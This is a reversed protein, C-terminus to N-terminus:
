WRESVGAALNPLPDVEVKLPAGAAVLRAALSVSVRVRAPFRHGIGHVEARLPGDGVILRVEDIRRLAPVLASAFRPQRGVDDINPCGIPFIL